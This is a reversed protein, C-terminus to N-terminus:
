ARSVLEHLKALTAIDERAIETILIRKGFEEEILVLLQVVGFSDLISEAFLDMDEEIENAEVGCVVSLLGRLKEKLENLGKKVLLTKGLFDITRFM